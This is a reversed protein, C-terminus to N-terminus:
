FFERMSRVTDQVHFPEIKLANSGKKVWVRVMAAASGDATSISPCEEVYVVDRSRFEYFFAQQSLPDNLLLIRAPDRSNQLSGAFAIAIEQLKKLSGRYPEIQYRAMLSRTEMIKGTQSCRNGGRDM